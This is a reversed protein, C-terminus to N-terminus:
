PKEGICITSHSISAAVDEPPKVQNRPPHIETRDAERAGQGVPRFSEFVCGRQRCMRSPSFTLRPFPTLFRNFESHSDTGSVKKNGAGQAIIFQWNVPASRHHNLHGSHQLFLIPKGDLGSWVRPNDPDVRIPQQAAQASAPAAYVAALAHLTFFIATAAMGTLLAISM